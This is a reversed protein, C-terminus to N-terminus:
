WQRITRHGSFLNWGFEAEAEAEASNSFTLNPAVRIYNYNNSGFVPEWASGVNNNNNNNNNHKKKHNSDSIWLVLARDNRLRDNRFKECM